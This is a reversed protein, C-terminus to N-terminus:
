RAAALAAFGREEATPYLLTSAHYVPANVYGHDAFPKRGGITVKSDQKTETNAPKGSEAKTM